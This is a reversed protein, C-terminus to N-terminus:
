GHGTALSSRARIVRQLAQSFSLHYFYIERVVMYEVLDYYYQIPVTYTYRYPRAEKPYALILWSLSVLFIYAKDIFTTCNNTWCSDSLNGGLREADNKQSPPEISGLYRSGLRKNRASTGM